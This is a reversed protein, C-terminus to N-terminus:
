WSQANSHLIQPGIIQVKSLLHTCIRSKGMKIAQFESLAHYRVETENTTLIINKHMNQLNILM